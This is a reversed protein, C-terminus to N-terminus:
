TKMCASNAANFDASNEPVKQSRESLTNGNSNKAESEGPEAWSVQNGGYDFCAQKNDFTSLNRVCGPDNGTNDWDYINFGNKGKSPDMKNNCSECAAQTTAEYCNQINSQGYDPTNCKDLKDYIINEHLDKCTELRKMIVSKLCKSTFKACTRLAEKNKVEAEYICDDSQAQNTGKTEACKAKAKYLVMDARNFCEHRRSQVEGFEERTLDEKCAMDAFGISQFLFTLSIGLSLIRIPNQIMRGRLCDGLENIQNYEIVMKKRLNLIRMTVRLNNLKTKQNTKYKIIQILKCARATVKALTKPIMQFMITELILPKAM